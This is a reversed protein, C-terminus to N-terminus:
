DILGGLKMGQAIIDNQKALYENFEDSPMFDIKFGYKEAADKFRETQAAKEFVEELKQIRAEPTEKPVSIGRFLEIVVDYGVETLTPVDPYNENRKLTPFVLIKVDGSAVHPAVEPLPVCAADVEGGLMAPMRRDAGLPVHTVEIGTEAAFVVAAIHTTSGTGANGLKIQGPNSKAYDLFEEITDYEADARVAIPMSTYGIRCVYGLEDYPFPVNGINTSTLVSTSNWGVTYGDSKSNRLTQYMVGGGAGTKNVPVFPKGFSDEAGDILARGLVDCSGGAGFPILFQVSKTPYDADGGASGEQQGEAFVVSFGLGLMCLSIALIFFKKCM